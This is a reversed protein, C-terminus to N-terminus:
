ASSGRALTAQHGEEAIIAKFPNRSKMMKIAEYWRSYHTGPLDWYTRYGNALIKEPTNFWELVGLRFLLMTLEAQNGYGREISKFEGEASELISDRAHRYDHCGRCLWRKNQRTDPGLKARPIIHDQELM